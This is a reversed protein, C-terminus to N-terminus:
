NRWKRDDCKYELRYSPHFPSHSLFAKSTACMLKPGHGNRTVLSDPFHLDEAPYGHAWIFKLRKSHLLPLMSIPLGHATKVM